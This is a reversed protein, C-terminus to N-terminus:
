ILHPSFFFSILHLLRNDELSQPSMGLWGSGWASPLCPHGGAQVRLQQLQIDKRPQPKSSGPGAGCVWCLLAPVPLREWYGEETGLAIEAWHYLSIGCLLTILKVPKIQKVTWMKMLSNNSPLWHNQKHSLWIWRVQVPTFTVWGKKCASSAFVLPISCLSSQSEVCIPTLHVEAQKQSVWFSYPWLLSWVPLNFWFFLSGVEVARRCDLFQFIKSPILGKSAGSGSKQVLQASSFPRKHYRVM